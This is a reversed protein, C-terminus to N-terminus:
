SCVVLAGSAIVVGVFKRYVCHRLINSLLLMMTMIVM